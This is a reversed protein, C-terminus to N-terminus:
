QPEDADLHGAKVRFTTEMVAKRTNEKLSAKFEDSQLIENTADTVMSKMDSEDIADRVASWIAQHMAQRANSEIWNDEKDHLWSKEFASKLMEDLGDRPLAATVLSTVVQKISDQVHGNFEDRDLEMKFATDQDTM